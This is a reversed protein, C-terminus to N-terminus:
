QRFYKEYESDIQVYSIGASKIKDALEAASRRPDASKLDWTNIVGVTLIKQQKAWEADEKSINGSFLYYNEAKFGPKLMNEELQKRTCSLKIKGTFFETSEDTGIMLANEFLDYKKLMKIVSNFLVTDNGSIKNDLMIQIKGQSYQLVDELKM